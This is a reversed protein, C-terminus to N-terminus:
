GRRKFMLLVDVFAMNGLIWVPLWTASVHTRFARPEPHVFASRRHWSPMECSGTWSGRLM